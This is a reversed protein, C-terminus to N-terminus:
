TGQIVYETGLDEIADDKDADCANSAGKIKYNSFNLDPINSKQKRRAPKKPPLAKHPSRSESDPDNSLVNTQDIVSPRPQTVQNGDGSNVGHVPSEQDNNSLNSLREEVSTERSLSVPVDGSTRSHSDVDQDFADSQISVQREVAVETDSENYLRQSQSSAEPGRDKAYIRNVINREDLCETRDSAMPNFSGKKNKLISRLKLRKEKVRPSTVSPIFTGKKEKIKVTGQIQHQEKAQMYQVSQNSRVNAGPSKVFQLSNRDQDTENIHKYYNNNRQESVLESDTESFSSERSSVSQKRQNVNLVCTSDQFRSFHNGSPLLHNFNEETLNPVSAYKQQGSMHASRSEKAGTDYAKPFSRSKVAEPSSINSSLDSLGEDDNSLSVDVIKLNQHFKRTAFSPASEPRQPRHLGDNGAGASSGARSQSVKLLIYPSPARKQRYKEAVKKERMSVRCTGHHINSDDIREVDIHSHGAATQQGVRGNM